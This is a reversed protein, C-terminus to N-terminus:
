KIHLNHKWTFKGTDNEEPLYKDKPTEPKKNEAACMSLYDNVANEFDSFMTSKDHVDFLIIDSLLYIVKGYLCNDEESYCIVAEYGKYSLLATIKM